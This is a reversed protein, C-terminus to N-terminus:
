WDRRSRADYEDQVERAIREDNVTGMLLCKVVALQDEATENTVDEGDDDYIAYDHVNVSTVSYAFELPDGPYYRTPRTPHCTIQVDIDMTGSASVHNSDYGVEIEINM